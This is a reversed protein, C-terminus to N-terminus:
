RITNEHRLWRLEFRAGGEATNSLFVEGEITHMAQQAVALGYGFHGEKTTTGMALVSASNSTFGAGNDIIALWNEAGARGWNIIIYPTVLESRVVTADVANRLGNMLALLLHHKDIKIFFPVPEPEALVIYRQYEEPLTNVAESIVVHLDEDTYNPASAASKLDRISQMLSTLLELTRKTKSNEFIEGLERKANVRLIGVIPGFEHLITSTVEEVATAMIGRVDHADDSGLLDTTEINKAAIKNAKEIARILASKVWRVNENKLAKELVDLDGRSANLSFFRAGALRKNVNDSQLDILAESRDM